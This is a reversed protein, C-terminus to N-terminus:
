KAAILAAVLRPLEWAHRGAAVSGCLECVGIDEVFMTNASPHECKVLAEVAARVADPARTGNVPSLTDVIPAPVAQEGKGIPYTLHFTRWWAEWQRPDRRYLRYCEEDTLREAKPPTPVADLQAARTRVADNWDCASDNHRMQTASQGLAELAFRRDRPHDKCGMKKNAWRACEDLFADDYVRPPIPEKRWQHGNVFGRSSPCNCARNSHAHSCHCDACFSGDYSANNGNILPEVDVIPAPTPAPLMSAIEQRLKEEYHKSCMAQGRRIDPKCEGDSGCNLDQIAEALEKKAGAFAERLAKRAPWIKAPSQECAGTELDDLLNLFRVEDSPKAPAAEHTRLPRAPITGSGTKYECWERHTWGLWHYVEGAESYAIACWASIAAEVETRTPAVMKGADALHDPPTPAPITERPCVPDHVWRADRGVGAAFILAENHTAPRDCDACVPYEQGEWEYRERAEASSDAAHQAAEMTPATGQAIPASGPGDVPWVYWHFGDDEEYVRVGCINPQSTRLRLTSVRVGCWPRWEGLKEREVPPSPKENRPACEPHWTALVGEEDNADISKGHIPAECGACCREPAEQRKRLEVIKRDAFTGASEQMGAAIAADYAREWAAVEAPTSLTM